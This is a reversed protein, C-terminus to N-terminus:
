AVAKKRLIYQNDKILVLRMLYKEAIEAVADRLGKRKEVLRYDDGTMFGDPKIKPYFHDLDRKVSKYNHSGDVYIWDFYHDPFMAYVFQSKNRHIEVQGSAISAKFRECVQDYYHVHPEKLWPDILHLKQPQVYELIKESFEGRSVGIEACISNKPMMELLFKRWFNGEMNENGKGKAAGGVM